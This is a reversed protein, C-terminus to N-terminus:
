FVFDIYDQPVECYRVGFCRTSRIDRRALSLTKPTDLAVVLMSRQRHPPADPDTKGMVILVRCNPHLANSSWWKLGNIIYGDGDREIRTGSTRRM